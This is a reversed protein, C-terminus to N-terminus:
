DGLVGWVTHLLHSIEFDRLFIHLSRHILALRSFLAQVRSSSVVGITAWRHM